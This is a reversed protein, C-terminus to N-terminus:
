FSKTFILYPMMVKKQLLTKRKFTVMMGYWHILCKRSLGTCEEKKRFVVITEVKSRNKKQDYKLKVSKLMQKEEPSWLKKKTLEESKTKDKM